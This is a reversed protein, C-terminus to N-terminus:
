RNIETRQWYLLTYTLKTQSILQTKTKFLAAVAARLRTQDAYDAYYDLVLQRDITEQYTYSFQQEHVTAPLQTKFQTMIQADINPDSEDIGLQQALPSFLDDENLTLRLVVTWRQSKQAIAQINAPTVSPNLAMFIIQYTQDPTTALFQDLSEVQYAVNKVAAKQAEQRAYQLMVTSIDSIVYHQSAQALDPLYRGSGGGLDVVSQTPLLQQQRLFHIVDSVIPVQSAQQIQYYDPAFEDWFAAIEDDM